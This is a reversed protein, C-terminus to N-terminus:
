FVLFKHQLVCAVDSASVAICNVVPPINRVTHCLFRFLFATYLAPRIATPDMCRSLQCHYSYLSVSCRKKYPHILLGEKQHQYYILLKCLPTAITVYLFVFTAVRWDKFANRIHQWDFPIDGAALPFEDVNDDSDSLLVRSCHLSEGGHDIRLRLLVREKESVSLFTSEAPFDQIVFFSALGVAM